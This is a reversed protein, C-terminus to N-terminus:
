TEKDLNKLIDEQNTIKLYYRYASIFPKGLIKNLKSEAEIMLTNRAFRAPPINMEKAYEYWLEKEEKSLKIEIRQDRIVKKKNM